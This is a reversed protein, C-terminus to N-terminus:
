QHFPKVPTVSILRQRLTECASEFDDVTERAPELIINLINKGFFDSLGEMSHDASAVHMEMSPEFYKILLTEVM